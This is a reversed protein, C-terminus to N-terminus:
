HVEGPSSPAGQPAENGPPATGGQDGGPGTGPGEPEPAPSNQGGAGAQPTTIKKGTINELAGKVMQAEPSLTSKNDISMMPGGMSGRNNKLYTLQDKTLLKELSSTSANVETQLALYQEMGALLKAKQEDSLPYYQDSKLRLIGVALEHITLSEPGSYANNAGQQSTSQSGQQRTKDKSRLFFWYIQFCVILALLGIIILQTRDKGM